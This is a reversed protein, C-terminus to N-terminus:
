SDGYRINSNLPYGKGTCFMMANLCAYIINGDAVTYEAVQGNFSKKSVIIVATMSNVIIATIM